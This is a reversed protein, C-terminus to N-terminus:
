KELGESENVIATYANAANRVANNLATSTRTAGSIFPIDIDKEINGGTHNKYNEFYSDSLVKGGISPTEGNDVNSIGIIKGENDFAVLVEVTGKYAGKGTVDFCYGLTEEGKKILYTAKVSVDPTSLEKTEARIGEGFFSTMSDNLAKATNKEIVPETLANVAALVAVTVACILLLPLAIKAVYKVNSM